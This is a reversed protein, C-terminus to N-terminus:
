CGGQAGGAAAVSTNAPLAPCPPPPIPSPPPMGPQPTIPAIPAAAGLGCRCAACPPLGGALLARPPARWGGAVVAEIASRRVDSPARLLEGALRDTMADVATLARGYFVADAGPFLAQLAALLQEQPSGAAAAAAM